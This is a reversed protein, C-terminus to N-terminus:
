VADPVRRRWYREEHYEFRQWAESDASTINLEWGEGAPPRNEDTWAKRPGTTTEYQYDPHLRQQHLADVNVADPVPGSLMPATLRKDLALVPESARFMEVYESVLQPDAEASLATLDLVTPELSPDHWCHQGEGGEPIGAAWSAQNSCPTGDQNVHACAWIGDARLVWHHLHREIAVGDKTVQLSHFEPGTM